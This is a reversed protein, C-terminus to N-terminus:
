PRLDEQLSLSKDLRAEAYGEAPRSSLRGKAARRVHAHHDSDRRADNRDRRAADDDVCQAQLRM